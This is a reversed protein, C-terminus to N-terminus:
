LCGYGGLLRRCPEWYSSPGFSRFGRWLMGFGEYRRASIAKQSGPHKSPCEGADRRRAVLEVLATLTKPPLIFHPLSRKNKTAIMKGSEASKVLDSTPLRGKIM